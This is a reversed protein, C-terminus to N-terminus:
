PNVVISFGSITATNVGAVNNTSAVLVLSLANATNVTFSNINPTGNQTGATCISSSTQASVSSQNGVVFYFNGTVNGGSGGSLVNCTALLKSTISDFLGFSCTVQTTNNNQCSTINAQVSITSSAAFTGAPIGLATSTAYQVSSGSANVSTGNILSYHPAGTIWSLIGSGNNQLYGGATGQTSPYVYPVNNEVLKNSANAAISTTATLTTTAGIFSTSALTTQGAWNYNYISSTAIYNPNIKDDNQSVVVHLGTDSAGQTPSSSAISAPISLLAGTSGTGTSSATQINTSFQVCGRLSASANGCGTSGIASAVAVSALAQPNGNQLTTATVSPDYFIATPISEIGRMINTLINIIPATTIQVSGGRNHVQELSAVSTTGTTLDLGRVCGTAATGVVSTCFVNEQSATGQDITFGYAGSLAKSQSDTGRVLTLTTDTKGIGSQLSDSYFDTIVPVTAAYVLSFGSLVGLLALLSIIAKKM